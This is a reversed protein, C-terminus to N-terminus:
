FLAAVLAELSPAAFDPEPVVQDEPSTVGSYVLAFEFGLARAFDGDTDPRDGVVIGHDGVQECVEDVVPQNPKGAIIPERDTATAVAALIAGGGPWLGEPTPYTPDHNTGILRAGGYIATVARRLWDFDFAPDFGVIVADVGETSDVVEGGRAEVAEGIGPGGLVFVREGEGILRAAATASTIVQGTADIGHRALKAVQEAQTLRSMNTVFVVDDAAQLRAVADAAGRIPEDGVWIVGDLDLVWAM